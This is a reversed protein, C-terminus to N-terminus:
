LPTQNPQTKVSWTFLHLINWVLSLFSVYEILLGFGREVFYASAVLMFYLSFQLGFLCMFM